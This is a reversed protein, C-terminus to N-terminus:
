YIRITKNLGVCSIVLFEVRDGPGDMWMFIMLAHKSIVGSRSKNIYLSSKTSAQGISERRCMMQGVIEISAKEAQNWDCSQRESLDTSTARVAILDPSQHITWRHRLSRSTNRHHLEVRTQLCLEDLDRLVSQCVTALWGMALTQNCSEDAM